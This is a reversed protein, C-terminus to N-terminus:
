SVQVRDLFHSRETLDGPDGSRVAGPRHGLHPRSPVLRQTPHLAGAERLGPLRDSGGRASPRPHPGGGRRALGASHRLGRGARPPLSHGAHGPMGAMGGHMGHHMANPDAGALLIPVLMLGAGHASAMLFSWATLDRFGVRMGVWGPHRARILRYLGFGLIGAAAVAKLGWTPLSERAAWLVALVAAISLAHGLAIPPLAALVAGRRQEQLGLAVAFLWGMGPNVGHFAGLGFLAIWPWLERM